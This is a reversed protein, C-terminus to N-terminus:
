RSTLEEPIDDICDYDEDPKENKNDIINSGDSESDTQGFVLPNQPQRTFGMKMKGIM